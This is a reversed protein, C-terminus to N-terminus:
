SAKSIIKSIISLIIVKIFDTILFPLFGMKFANNIGVFQSLWLTGCLLVIVSVIILAFFRPMYNLLKKLIIVALPWSLIYGGTPGLIVWIGGKFNAFVPFNIAGEAIYTIVSYLAWDKPLILALLFITFTQLTIPVPSFPLDISIQASLFILFSTFLVFFVKYVISVKEWINELAVIM